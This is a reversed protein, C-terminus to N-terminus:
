IWCGATTVVGFITACWCCGGRSWCCCGVNSTANQWVVPARRPTTAAFFFRADADGGSARQASAYSKLFFFEEETMAGNDCKGSEVCVITSHRRGCCGVDGDDTTTLTERTCGLVGQHRFPSAARQNLQTSARLSTATSSSSRKLWPAM